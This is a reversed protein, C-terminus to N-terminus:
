IGQVNDNKGGLIKSQNSYNIQKIIKQYVM